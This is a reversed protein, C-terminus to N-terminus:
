FFGVVIERFQTPKPNLAQQSNIRLRGPVTMTIGDGDKTDNTVHLGHPGKGDRRESDQKHQSFNRYRGDLRASRRTQSVIPRVEHSVPTTKLWRHCRLDTKRLSDKPSAGARPSSQM